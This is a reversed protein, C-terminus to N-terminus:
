HIVRLMPPKEDLKLYRTWLATKRYVREVLKRGNDRSEDLLGCYILPGLVSSHLRSTRPDFENPEDEAGYLTDTIHKGTAGHTTELDMVNLWVDWNGFVGYEQRMFLRHPDEFMVYQALRHFREFRDKFLSKGTKSLLLKGKYHRVLKLDLLNGHLEFFPQFHYEDAFKVPAYGGYIREETWDPWQIEAIAEAVLDRKFALGKTLPIGSPNEDFKVAFFDLARALPSQGLIPDDANIIRFKLM